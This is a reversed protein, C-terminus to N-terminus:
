RAALMLSGTALLAMVLALASVRLACLRVSRRELPDAIKEAGHGLDRLGNLALPTCTRYLGMFIGNAGIFFPIFVASLAARPLHLELGVTGLLIGSGFGIVGWRLRATQPVDSLNGQRERSVDM